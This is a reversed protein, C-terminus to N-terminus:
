GERPPQHYYVNITVTAGAANPLNPITIPLAPRAAQAQNAAAAEEARRTVRRPYTGDMIQEWVEPSFMRSM